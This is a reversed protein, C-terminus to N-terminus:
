AAAASPSTAKIIAAIAVGAALYALFETAMYGVTSSTPFGYWNWYPLNTTMAAAVGVIAVFGLRGLYTGLRTQALLFAILLAEFLETLFETALQRPTLSKAGAPHYILLGSPNAALKQDYQQMAARMQQTTADSGLGMGPFIYLGPTDGMSSRMSDLVSAENPIERVGTAGLPLVMHAVSSWVFMVIGGLIGAMVVRKAM